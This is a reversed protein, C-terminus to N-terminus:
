ILVVPHFVSILISNSALAHKRSASLFIRTAIFLLSLPYVLAPNPAHGGLM